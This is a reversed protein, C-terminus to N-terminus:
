SPVMFWCSTRKNGIIAKFWGASLWILGFLVFIDGVSIAMRRPFHVPVLVIDSLWWLQTDERHLLISKTSPLPDGVEVQQALQPSTVSQLTEPAIPMLGGNAGMVLINLLLGIGVLRIGTWRFNLVVLLFLLAYSLIIGLRLLIEGPFVSNVPGMAPAQLALAVPALWWQRLLARKLTASDDRLPQQVFKPKQSEIAKKM